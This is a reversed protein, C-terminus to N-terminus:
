ELKRLHGYLSTVGNGHDLRAYRRSDGGAAAMVTRGRAIDGADRGAASTSGAHHERAGTWTVVATRISNV